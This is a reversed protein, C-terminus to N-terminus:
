DRIRVHYLGPRREGSLLRMPDLDHSFITITAPELNLSASFDISPRKELAVHVIFQVVIALVGAGLFTPIM